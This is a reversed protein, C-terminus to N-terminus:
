RINKLRSSSSAVLLVVGTREHEECRQSVLVLIQLINANPLPKQIICGGICVCAWEVMAIKKWLTPLLEEPCYVVVLLSLSPSWRIGNTPKLKEKSGPTRFQWEDLEACAGACEDGAAGTFVQLAQCRLRGVQRQSGGNEQSQAM